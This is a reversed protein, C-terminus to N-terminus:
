AVGSSSLVANLAQNTRGLGWRRAIGKHASVSNTTRVRSRLHFSENKHLRICLPSVLFRPAVKLIGAFMHQPVDRQLCLPTTM